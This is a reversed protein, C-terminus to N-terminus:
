DLGSQDLRLTGDESVKEKPGESRTIMWLAVGALCCWIILLVVLKGWLLATAVLGSVLMSFVAIMKSRRGIAGHEFWLRLGPGFIRHEMMRQRLKPSARFAFFCAIIWFLTTPLLPLFAGVLGIFFFLLALGAQMRLWLTTRVKKPDETV